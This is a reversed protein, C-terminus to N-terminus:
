ILLSTLLITKRTVYESVKTETDQTDQLQYKKALFFFNIYNKGGESGRTGKEEEELIM